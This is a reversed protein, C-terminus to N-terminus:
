KGLTIEDFHECMKLVIRPTTKVDDANFTCQCFASTDVEECDSQSSFQSLIPCIESVTLSNFFTDERIGCTQYYTNYLTELSLREVNLQEEDFYTAILQVM